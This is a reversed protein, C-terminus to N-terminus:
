TGVLSNLRAHSRAELLEAWRELREAKSLFPTTPLERVKAVRELQEVTHHKM